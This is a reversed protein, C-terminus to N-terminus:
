GRLPRAFASSLSKWLTKPSQLPAECGRRHQPPGGGRDEAIRRASPSTFVREESGSAEAESGGRKAVPSNWCRLRLGLLGLPLHSRGQGRAAWHSQWAETASNALYPGLCTQAHLACTRTMFPKNLFDTAPAGPMLLSM